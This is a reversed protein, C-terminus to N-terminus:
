GRQVAHKERHLERFERHVTGFGPTNVDNLDITKELVHTSAFSQTPQDPFDDGAVGADPEEGNACETRPDAADDTHDGDKGEEELDDAEHRGEDEGEEELDEAEHRGEM